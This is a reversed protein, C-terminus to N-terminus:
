TIIIFGPSSYCGSVSLSLIQLFTLHTNCMFSVSYFFASGGIWYGFCVGVATGMLTGEQQLYFLLTMTLVFCQLDVPRFVADPLNGPPSCSNIWAATRMYNNNVVKNCQPFWFHLLIGVRVTPIYVFLAYAVHTTINIKVDLLNVHTFNGVHLFLSASSQKDKVM